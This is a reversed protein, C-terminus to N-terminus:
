RYVGIESKSYAVLFDVLENNSDIWHALNLNKTVQKKIKANKFTFSYEEDFFGKKFHKVSHSYSLQFLKLIASDHYGLTCDIFKTMLVNKENRFFSVIDKSVPDKGNWALQGNFVLLEEKELLDACILYMPLYDDPLGLATRVISDFVSQPSYIHIIIRFPSNLNQLHEFIHQIHKQWDTNNLTATQCKEKIETLRDKHTSECINFYKIQNNGDLGKLESILQEDSSRPDDAYIGFKSIHSITWNTQALEAEFKSPYGIEGSDAYDEKLVACQIINELYDRYEELSEFEEAEMDLDENGQLLELYKPISQSQFAFCTAYMYMIGDKELNADMSVVVFNELGFAKCQEQIIAVAVDRKDPSSFLDLWYVPSFQGTLQTIKLPVIIEKAIPRFSNDTTLKIGKIDLTTQHHCESFPLLLESWHTSVIICRIESDRAHYNQKLLSIYKFLEQLTQRSAQQSRKIEIVVFNNFRDKALIDVFGNSGSVNPLFHEKELLTLGSEIFDLQGALYDRITAESLDNKM